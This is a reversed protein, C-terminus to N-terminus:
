TQWEKSDEPISRTGTVTPAGEASIEFEFEIPRFVWRALMARGSPSFLRPNPYATMGEIGKNEGSQLLKSIKILQGPHIVNDAGGRFSFWENDSPGQPLGFGFSGDIGYQDVMLGSARKYRISPFKATRCAKVLVGLPAIEIRV